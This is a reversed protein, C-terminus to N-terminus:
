LLLSLILLYMFLKFSDSLVKVSSEFLLNVLDNPNLHIKPSLVNSCNIFTFVKTTPAPAIPHSNSLFKEISSTPVPFPLIITVSGSM